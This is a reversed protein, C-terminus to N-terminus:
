LATVSAGGISYIDKGKKDGDQGVIVSVKNALFGSLDLLSTVGTINAGLLVL